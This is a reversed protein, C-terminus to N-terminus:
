YLHEYIESLLRESRDSGSYDPAQRTTLHLLGSEDRSLEVQYTFRPEDLGKWFLWGETREEDSRYDVYWLGESRNIDVVPIDAEALTRTIEAWARDYSLDLEIRATEADPTVLRVRPAEAIDLAARSYLKVDEQAELYDALDELLRKELEPHDRERRWALLDEAQGETVRVQMQVETTLRRVGPSVRAQVLTQTGPGEDQLELWERAKLSYDAPETQMLGLRTNEHDLTLGRDALFRVVSPWVRGPMENVLLWSQGGASEVVYNEELIDATLDPPEPIGAAPTRSPRVRGGEPIPYLPEVSQSRFGEPLALGRALQEQKYEEQRDPIQGCGGLATLLLTVVVAPGRSSRSVTPTVPM